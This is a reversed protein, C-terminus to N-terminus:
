AKVADMIDSDGPNYVTIFAVLHPRGVVIGLDHSTKSYGLVPINSLQCYYEIDEKHEKPANDAIIILKADGTKASRKASNVGIATKGSKRAVSIARDIDVM